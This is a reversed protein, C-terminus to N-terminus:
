ENSVQYPVEYHCQLNRTTMIKQILFFTQVNIKFHIKFFSIIAKHQYQFNLQDLFDSIEYDSPLVHTRKGFKDM